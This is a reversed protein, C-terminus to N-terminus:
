MQRRRRVDALAGVILLLSMTTPEPVGALAAEFAGAGHEANYAARFLIFDNADNKFDGNLDGRAYAEEPTLASLNTYMYSIYISFDTIDFMHDSNLDGFIYGQLPGFSTLGVIDMDYDVQSNYKGRMWTLATHTADWIPVIPRVNDATSNFTIPTWNWNAGGDTTTGEFIEHFNLNTDNRPDITSSIYLHNPDFPDLAVLGTYDQEAPYLRAGAKALEHVNWQTGDFRAYWFRHDNYGNTNVPIDDRRTTFIAYPNGNSDIQLDTTWARTNVQNGDEPDSQFVTMLATQNPANNDFINSDVLTGDTRFMQGGKIYGAYISNNFDRPHYETGIFDIRDVGNSAYKFYGNVYGVFTPNFVLNGGYTWTSGNNSSIMMNPSRNNARAFNYTRNEAPLYFLNSYTVNFDSGPTTSWDFDQEAGWSTADHPNTSIRYHSIKDANHRTYMALYRGDPRILLAAADHDDAGLGAHLVFRNTQGSTLDYSVVDIDGNRSGGDTGSADAASSMLLKGATTDVIVREDMYWSWAGNTNFTILNGAVQNIEVGAASPTCAFNLLWCLVIARHTARTLEFICTDTDKLSSIMLEIWPRGQPPRRGM